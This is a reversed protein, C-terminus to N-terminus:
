KRNEEIEGEKTFFSTNLNIFIDIIHVIIFIYTLQVKFAMEIVVPYCFLQMLIILILCIKWYLLFLNESRIVQM